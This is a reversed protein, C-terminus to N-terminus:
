QLPTYASLTYSTEEDAIAASWDIYLSTPYGVKDDYTV